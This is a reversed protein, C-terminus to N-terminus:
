WKINIWAFDLHNRIIIHQAALQLILIVRIPYVWCEPKVKQIMVVIFQKRM